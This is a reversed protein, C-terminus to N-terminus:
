AAETPATRIVIRCDGRMMKPDRILRFGRVFVDTPPPEPIAKSRSITDQNVWVVDYLHESVLVEKIADPGHKKGEESLLECFNWLDNV